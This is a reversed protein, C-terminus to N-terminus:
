LVQTASPKPTEHKKGTQSRVEATRQADSGNIWAHALMIAAERIKEMIEIYPTNAYHFLFHFSSYYRYCSDLAGSFCLASTKYLSLPIGCLISTIITLGKYVRVRGSSSPPPM